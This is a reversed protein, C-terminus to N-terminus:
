FILVQWGPRSREWASDGKLYWDKSTASGTGMSQKEYAVSRGFRGRLGPSLSCSVLSSSLGSEKRM